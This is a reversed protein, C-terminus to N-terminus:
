GAATAAATAPLFFPFPDAGTGAGAGGVGGAFGSLAFAGPGGFTSFCVGGFFDAFGLFAALFAALVVLFGFPFFFRYSVSSSQPPRPIASPSTAGVAQCDFAEGASSLHSKADDQFM